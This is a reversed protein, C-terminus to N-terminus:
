SNGTFSDGLQKVTGDPTKCMIKLIKIHSTSIFEILRPSFLAPAYRFSCIMGNGYEAALYSLAFHEPDALTKHNNYAASDPDRMIEGEKRVFNVFIASNISLFSEELEMDDHNYIIHKASELFELYTSKVLDKVSAECKVPRFLYAGGMLYGIIAGAGPLLRDSVPMSILIKDNGTLWLFLLKLSTNIVAPISAQCYVALKGIESLCGADICYKYCVGKSANLKNLITQMDEIGGPGGAGSGFLSGPVFGNRREGLKKAWYSRLSDGNERLWENQWKAYEKLQMTLPPLPAQDGSILSSYLAFLDKRMIAISSADCIIHHILFCVYYSGSPMKFIGCRFLPATDLNKLEERYACLVTEIIDHANEKGSVNYYDPSYLEEYWPIVCQKIVGDKERYCTRLSEHRKIMMQISREIMDLDPADLEEELVMIEHQVGEGLGTHYKWSQVEMGSADHLVDTATSYDLTATNTDMDVHNLFDAIQDAPSKAFPGMIKEPVHCHGEAM